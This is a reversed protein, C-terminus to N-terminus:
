KGRKRYLKRTKEDMDMSTIVRAIGKGKLIDLHWGSSISLLRQDYFLYSNGRNHGSFAEFKSLGTFIVNIKTM